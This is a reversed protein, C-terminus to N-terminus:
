GEEIENPFLEYLVDVKNHTELWDVVDQEDMLFITESGTLMNGCKENYISKAGGEGHIFFQGKSTQYLVECCYNFDNMNGVSWSAIEKATETNYVKREIVKKM